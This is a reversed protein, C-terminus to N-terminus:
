VVEVESLGDYFFGIVELMVGESLSDPFLFRNGKKRYPFRSEDLFESLQEKENETEFAPNMESLDLKWGNSTKAIVRKM